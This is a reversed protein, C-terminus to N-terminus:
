IILAEKDVLFDIIKKNILEPQEGNISHGADKIIKLNLGLEAYAQKIDPKYVLKDYDGILFLANDKFQSFTQIDHSAINRVLPISHKFIYYFHKFVEDNEDDLVINPGSLKKFLKVANKKNPNLIEPMFVKITRLTYLSKKFGNVKIPLHGAMGVLKNVRDPYHIAYNLMLIVGFSVGIMHANKINLTNMIENIWKAEDFSKFFLENPESKGAAGLTDVAVVYFHKTFEQINHVWMLSSNDGTGHFLVLAPKTIDGAEIIHTRGYTTAIDHEEVEVDWMKLLIDYSEYLLKKGEESKFVKKPM